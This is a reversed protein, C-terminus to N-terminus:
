TGYREQGEAQAPYESQDGGLWLLRDMLEFDKKEFHEYTWATGFLASSTKFASATAVAKFIFLTPM